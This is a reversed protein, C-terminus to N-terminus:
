KDNAYIYGCHRGSYNIRRHSGERDGKIRRLHGDRSVVENIQCLLPLIEM